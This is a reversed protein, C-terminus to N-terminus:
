WDLPERSAERPPARLALGQAIAGLLADAPYPKLLHRDAGAALSAAAGQSRRAATLVIVYTPRLDASGRIARVLELGSRGPMDLDLLAVAPRHELLV